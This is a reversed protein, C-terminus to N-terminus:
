CEECPDVSVAMKFMSPQGGPNLSVLQIVINTMASRDINGVKPMSVALWWAKNITFAARFAEPTTDADSSSFAEMGIPGLYSMADLVRAVSPYNIEGTGPESRGPNDDTRVEGIWPLCKECWRVLHGEGIQTHHLDLNIRPQPRNVSSVAALVDATSGFPCGPHDLSNLNELM